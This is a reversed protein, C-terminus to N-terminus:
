RVTARYDPFRAATLKVARIDGPKRRKAGEVFVCGDEGPMQFAAHAKWGDETREDLMVEIREGLRKKARAKWVKKQAAYLAKCRAEAVAAPVKDPMEASRTGPEPSYVFAGMAEFQQEEVFRLLAVFDDETEGPHGVIFTTRIAIGPVKERLLDLASRMQAMGHRRGMKELMRDTAHQLPLDLYPALLPNRAFAEAFEKTVHRPHAYLLRVRRVGAAAEPLGDLLEPLLSKGGALDMGYATTDQAILCLERVGSAALEGAERLVADLPRSVREGRILPIACFHCHNGCGEGLKLFALHPAGSLIRGGDLWRLYAPPLKKGKWGRPAAAKERAGREALWARCLAPLRPYDAFGAVRDAASLMDAFAANGAAREAMCGCAVILGGTRLRVTELTERAEERAAALFGCTNVLVVDAEAADAVPVFGHLAFDGLLRESDVTNKPCGLSVVAFSLPTM